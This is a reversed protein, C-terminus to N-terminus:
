FHEFVLVPDVGFSPIVPSFSFGEYVASPFAFHHPCQLITQCNGGKKKKKSHPAPDPPSIRLFFDFVFVLCAVVVLTFHFNSLRTRSKAVGHVICDM